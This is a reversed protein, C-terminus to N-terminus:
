QWPGVTGFVQVGGCFSIDHAKWTLPRIPVSLGPDPSELSGIRDMNIKFLQLMFGAAQRYVTEMESDTVDDGLARRKEGPPGLVDDLAKAEEAPDQGGQRFVDMIIYPGLGLPNQASTGWAIIDPVPITTEKRILNIAAVEMAVKEDRLDDIVKGVRPFRALWLSWDDYGIKLGANYSGNLTRSDVLGCFINDPHFKSMWEALRGSRFAETIDDNFKDCVQEEETNALNNTDMTASDPHGTDGLHM